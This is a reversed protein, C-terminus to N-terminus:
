PRARWTTGPWHPRASTRASAGASSWRQELMQGHLRVRRTTSLEDLLTEQMLAHSFRYRGPRESEEAVRAALGEELLKLLEDDSHEGVLTLTEYNFERGVVAAVQLLENAEESLRDLRRGLAERVGDPLAIDAVSEASLTGEEAMLNVVESLFFPNGETEEHIRDLVSPVPTVGAKKSIFAGAEEKSLGRLPVRLFGSERNLEALAESLPHTRALETDRYTGVVLVRMDALERAVYQLLQLTPKDAWHLDDLVVLWPTERSQARMFQSYADFLLFQSAETETREPEVLDPIAQRLEPFLRVLEGAVEPANGAGVGHVGGWARGVQVWPWYAPMGSSEHTRGWYVEAGRLRAYTELEQVTGTKGIGPEGVLMVVSGRGTLANDLAEHMQRLEDERGVFVGGALQELPNAGPESHSRSTGAPDVSELIARVAGADKPRKEPEKELLQLILDELLPPCHESHWSPAVPQTNLHQSIVATPTDGQFPTRGTVLEYLLM